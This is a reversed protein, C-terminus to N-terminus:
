KLRDVERLQDNQAALAVRARDSEEFLERYRRESEALKQQVQLRDRQLLVVRAGVLLTAVIAAVGLELAEPPRDLLVDAVLAIPAALLAAFLLAIRAVSLRQPGQPLSRMRAMSPHLAAVGWLGYSILWGVDIEMGTTYAGSVNLYSYFADAVLLAVFGVVICRLAFNGALRSS